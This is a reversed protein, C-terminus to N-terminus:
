KGEISAIRLANNSQGPCQCLGIPTGLAGSAYCVASVVNM